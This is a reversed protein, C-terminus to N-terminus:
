RRIRTETRWLFHRRHLFVCYLSSERISKPKASRGIIISQREIRTYECPCRLANSKRLSRMGLFVDKLRSLINITRMDFCRYCVSVCYGTYSIIIETM